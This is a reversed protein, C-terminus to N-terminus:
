GKGFFLKNLKKDEQSVNFSQDKIESFPVYLQNKNLLEALLRKQKELGVENDKGNKTDEKNRSDNGDQRDNGRMRSDAINIIKHSKTRSDNGCVRSDARGIAIFDNLAEEPIEPNVYWNLFSNQAIDKWLAILEKSSKAEQIKDMYTENYKMLECSIFDGGGKWDVSKSIGSLDGKIVNKLRVLSDNKGYDLQEIGIYQRGMKHAVAATTGSGLHYDLVIDGKKTSMEIIRKLLQEPKKGNRMEVNGELRCNGVAGSFNYFNSISKFKIATGKKIEEQRKLPIGSYFKGKTATPNKPGTFYRYGLGDDGIGEVKYLVELGDKKKRNALYDAFYKGSANNKLVTGSAWTEKLNTTVSIKNSDKFTIQNQSSERKRPFSLCPPFSPSSSSSMRTLMKTNEIKYDEKKFIKVKRNGLNLEKGKSQETIQWCFKDTSYEEEDKFPEFDGKSYVFVHEILKQYNNKETLSKGEYRVQIFLTVENNKKGFVEDMLVKLYAQESDDCQVFIVGDKRLLDKAVELRNKMFTLWSSHNFSDNYKFSDSGTNYPPDIYILKVKGMFQKKLTHLALLNNGKIILNERIIGTKDDRKIKTVKEAGHATHRKFNTLIKPDFLRDIEDQALIENFFIERRSDEEKTQGGELICDKYPWVLSVEKRENLFKNDVTLGIQNSFRTYSNDLFNKDSIYEIFTNFNFVLHGAIEDFFKKKVASHGLLLRVLSHDTKWAKDMVVKKLLEGNSDVFRSDQKLLKVLATNFNKKM